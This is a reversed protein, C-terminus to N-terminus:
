KGPQWVIDILGKIDDPKMPHDIRKADLADDLTRQLGKIQYPQM